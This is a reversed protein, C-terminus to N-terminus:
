SSDSNLLCWCSDNQAAPASGRIVTRMNHSWGFQPPFFFKLYFFCSLLFVLILDCDTWIVFNSNCKASQSLWILGCIWISIVLRRIGPTLISSISPCESVQAYISCWRWYHTHLPCACISFQFFFLVRSAVPATPSLVEHVRSQLRTLWVWSHIQKITLQCSLYRFMNM